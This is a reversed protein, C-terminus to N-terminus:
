RKKSGTFKCESDFTPTNSESYSKGGKKKAELLQKQLQEKISLAVETGFLTVVRESNLYRQVSSTSIGTRKSIEEISGSCKSFEEVVKKVKELIVKEQYESLMYKVM